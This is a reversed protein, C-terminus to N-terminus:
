QVLLSVQPQDRNSMKLPKSVVNPLTLYDSKSAFSMSTYNLAAADRDSRKTSLRSQTQSKPRQSRVSNCRKPSPLPPQHTNNIADDNKRPTLDGVLNICYEIKYGKYSLGKKTPVTTASITNPCQDSLRKYIKQSINNTTSIQNKTELEFLKSMDIAPITESSVSKMGDSASKLSGEKKSTVSQGDSRKGHSDTVSRSIPKANDIEDYLINESEYDFSTKSKELENQDRFSGYSQQTMQQVDEASLEKDEKKIFTDV